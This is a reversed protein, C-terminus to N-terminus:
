LSLEPRPVGREAFVEEMVPWATLAAPFGAYVAVMRLTEIVEEPKAGHNLAGNIHSRLQAPRGSLAALMAVVELSRTRRDLLESSWIDGLAFDVIADALEPTKARLEAHRVDPDDGGSLSRLLDRGAERKSEFPKTESKAEIAMENQLAALIAANDDRPKALGFATLIGAREHENMPLDVVKEPKHWALEAGNAATPEGKWSSAAFLNYVMHGNAEPIFLTEYFAEEISDVTIGMEGLIAAMGSDVDAHEPLLDGGPLSWQDQEPGRYLLLEGELQLITALHIRQAM